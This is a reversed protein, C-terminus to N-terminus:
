KDVFNEFDKEVSEIDYSYFFLRFIMALNYFDEFPAKPIREFALSHLTSVFQKPSLKQSSVWTLMLNWEGGRKSIASHLFNAEHSDCCWKRLFLHFNYALECIEESINVGDSKIGNVARSIASEAQELKSLVMDIYLPDDPRELLANGMAENVYQVASSINVKDGWNLQNKM